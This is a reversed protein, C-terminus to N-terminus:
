VTLIDEKIYHENDIDATKSIPYDTRAATYNNFKKSYWDGVIQAKQEMNYDGDWSLGPTYNYVAHPGFIIEEGRTEVIECLNAVYEKHQYQWVHTFEHVMVRKSVNDYLLNEFDPFVSSPAAMMIEKGPISITFARSGFAELNTIWIKSYNITDKFVKRLEAEEESHIRRRKFLAASVLAGAIFVPLFCGPGALFYQGEAAVLGAVGLEGPLTIGTLDDLLGAGWIILSAPGGIMVTALLFEVKDRILSLAWDEINNTWELHVEFTGAVFEDWLSSAWRAGPDDWHEESPYEFDRFGTATPHLVAYNTGRVTGRCYSALIKGGSSRLLASIRFSYDALGSDHMRIKLFHAGDGRLTFQLQGGLSEPSPTTVVEEFTKFSLRQLLQTVSVPASFGVSAALASLSIPGATSQSVPLSLVTKM